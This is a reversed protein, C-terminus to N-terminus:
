DPHPDSPPICIVCNIHDAAKARISAMVKIWVYTHAHGEASFRVCLSSVRECESLVDPATKRCNFSCVSCFFILLFTRKEQCNPFILEQLRLLEKATNFIMIGNEWLLLMLKLRHLMKFFLSYCFRNYNLKTSWLLKFNTTFHLHM